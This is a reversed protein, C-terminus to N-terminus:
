SLRARASWPAASAFVKSAPSTGASFERQLGLIRPLCEFLM